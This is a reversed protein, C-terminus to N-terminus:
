ESVYITQDYKRGNYSGDSFADLSCHHSAGDWPDLYDIYTETGSTGDIFQTMYIVVVHGGNRTSGDYYGAGAQVPNGHSLSTAIQSFNWKSSKSTFNINNHTVYESGNASDRISGSVNPHPTSSTGKLHEVVDYQDRSSSPYVSTGAMEACAAWCWNTKAQKVGTIDASETQVTAFATPCLM